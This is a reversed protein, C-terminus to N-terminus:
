IEAKGDISNSVDRPRNHENELFTNENEQFYLEDFGAHGLPNPIVIVFGLSPPTVFM